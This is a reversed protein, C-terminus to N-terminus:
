ACLTHLACQAHRRNRMIFIKHRISPRVRRGQVPTQAYKVKVTQAQHPAHTKIWGCVRYIIFSIGTNFIFLCQKNANHCHWVIYIVYMINWNFLRSYFLLPLQHPDFVRVSQFLKITPQKDGTIYDALKDAANHMADQCNSSAYPIQPSQLWSLLDTM